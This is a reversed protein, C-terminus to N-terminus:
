TDSGVIGAMNSWRFGKPGLGPHYKNTDVDCQYAKVSTDGAVGINVSNEDIDFDHIHGESYFCKWERGENTMWFNWEHPVDSNKFTASKM